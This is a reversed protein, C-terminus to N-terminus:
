IAKGSQQEIIIQAMQITGAAPKEVPHTEWKRTPPPPQKALESKQIDALPVAPGQATSKWAQPKPSPTAPPTQQAKGTLILDAEVSPSPQPSPPPRQAEKERQQEKQIEAMSHAKRSPSSSGWASTHRQPFMSALVKATSPPKKFPAPSLSITTPSDKGIAVADMGPFQEEVVPDIDPTKAKVKRTKPVAASMTTQKEPESWFMETPKEAEAPQTAAEPV